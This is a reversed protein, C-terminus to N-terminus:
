PKIVYVTEVVVASPTGRRLPVQYFKGRYGALVSEVKSEGPLLLIGNAGRAAAAAKLKEFGPTADGNADWRVDGGIPVEVQGLREYKKPEKTYIQVDNPNTPPRTGASPAVESSCGGGGAFTATLLAAVFPLMSRNVHKPQM